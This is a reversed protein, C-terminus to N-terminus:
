RSADHKSSGEASDENEAAAAAVRAAEQVLAHALVKAMIQGAVRIIVYLLIAGMLARVAVDEEPVGQVIGVIAMVFLGMVAAIVAIRNV